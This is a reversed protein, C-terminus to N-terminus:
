FSRLRWVGDEDIVFLVHFSYEAGDRQARLDYEAAGPWIRVLRIPGLDAAVQPLAGVDALASFTEQFSERSRQAIVRLAATVDSQALAAKLTSWRPQLLADVVQQDVVHVVVAATHTQGATDRVTLSPLYLGPSAYTWTLGSASPGTHDVLGDGDADLRVEAATTLLSVNFAVALPAAGFSPTPRVLLAPEPAAQVTISQRAEAVSGDTRTAVAVLETTEPAAALLVAFRGDALAAPVGNVTVGEVTASVTGQVVLPGAPVTSGALPSTINPECPTAASIGVSVTGPTSKGLTVVLSNALTLAVSREVVGVKSTLAAVETGNLAVSGSAVRMLGRPGNEVRLTFAREPQCTAFQEVYKNPSGATRVYDKPGFVPIAGQAIPPGVLSLGIVALLITRRRPEPPSSGSQRRSAM